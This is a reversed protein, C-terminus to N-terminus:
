AEFNPVTCCATVWGSFTTFNNKQSIRVMSHSRSFQLQGINSTRFTNYDTFVKDAVFLNAGREM